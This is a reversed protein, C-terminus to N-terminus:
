KSFLTSLPALLTLCILCHYQLDYISVIDSSSTSEATMTTMIDLGHSGAYNIETIKVFDM